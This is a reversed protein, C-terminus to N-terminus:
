ESLGAAELADAHDGYSILSAVKGGDLTWVSSFRMEVDAGSGRGRGTAHNVVVVCNGVDIFEKPEFHFEEIPDFM